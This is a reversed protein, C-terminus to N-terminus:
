IHILSLEPNAVLIGLDEDFSVLQELQLPGGGAPRVLTKGGVFARGSAALSAGTAPNITTVSVAGALSTTSTLVDLPDIVQTFNAYIYHNGPVSSGPVIAETPFTPTPEIGNGRVVNESIDALSRISVIEATGPRMVRHPLLQGFGNSVENLALVAGSGSVGPESDKSSSFGGCASFLLLSASVLATQSLPSRLSM